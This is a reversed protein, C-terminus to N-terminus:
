NTTQTKQIRPKSRRSSSIKIRKRGNTNSNENSKNYNLDLFHLYKALDEATGMTHMRKRNIDWSLIKEGQLILENYSPCVYFENNFRINKEIMSLAASVFMKGQKFYYIGVTAHNSIVKKEATEIVEKNKNLRVFSWKPHSAEFTMIYGSANSKRANIIFEDIKEDIIQDGNAVILPNNNNIFDIATLVSCAAGQPAKEVTIIKFNNNTTSSFIQNYQPFKEYQEKIMIFIFQHPQKPTLNKIVQEIMPKGSVDVLSKPMSYGAQTYSKGSGALPVVINIM